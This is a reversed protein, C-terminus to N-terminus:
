GGLSASGQDLEKRKAPRSFVDLSKKPEQRLADLNAGFFDAGGNLGFIEGRFQDTETDYEIRASYGDVPMLNM